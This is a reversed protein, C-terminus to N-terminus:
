FLGTASIGFFVCTTHFEHLDCEKAPEHILDQRRDVVFGIEMERRQGM